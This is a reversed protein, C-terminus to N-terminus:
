IACTSIRGCPYFCGFFPAPLGDPMGVGFVNTEIDIEHPAIQAAPVPLGEHDVFIGAFLVFILVIQIFLRLSSIKRTQNRTGFYLAITGVSLFAATVVIISWNPKWTQTTVPSPAPANPNEPDTVQAFLRDCIHGDIAFINWYGAMDLKLTSSFNGTVPDTLPYLEIFRYDPRTFAIRVTKNEAPPCVQGTVTVTQNLAVQTRDIDASIHPGYCADAPAVQVSFFYVAVLVAISLFLRMRQKINVWV